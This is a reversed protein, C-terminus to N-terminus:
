DTRMPAYHSTMRYAKRPGAVHCTVSWRPWDGFDYTFDYQDPDCWHGAAGGEPPVQHFFRGDAFHVALDTTWVTRKESVFRGQPLILEGREDCIAGQGERRWRALGEFRARTGDDHHIERHLDWDGLFDELTKM